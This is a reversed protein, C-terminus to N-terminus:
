ISPACPRSTRPPTTRLPWTRSAPKPTPSSRIPNPPFWRLLRTWHPTPDPPVPKKPEQLALINPYQRRAMVNQQNAQMQMKYTQMAIQYTQQATGAILGDPTNVVVSTGTA